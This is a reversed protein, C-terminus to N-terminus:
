VMSASIAASEFLHLKGPSKLQPSNLNSKSFFIRMSLMVCVVEGKDNVTVTIGGEARTSAVSPENGM